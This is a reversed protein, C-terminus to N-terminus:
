VVTYQRDVGRRAIRPEARRLELRRGPALFQRDEGAELPRLDPLHEPRRSLCARGLVFADSEADVAVARPALIANAEVRTRVEGAQPKIRRVVGADLRVQSPDHQGLM